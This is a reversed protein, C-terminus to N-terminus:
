FPLHFPSPPPSILQQVAKNSGRAKLEKGQRIQHEWAASDALCDPVRIKGARWRQGDLRRSKDPDVSAKVSRCLWLNCGDAKCLVKRSVLWIVKAVRQRLTNWSWTSRSHASCPPGWKSKGYICTILAQQEAQSPLCCSRSDMRSGRWEKLFGNEPPDNLYCLILIFRNCSTLDKPLDNQTWVVSSFCWNAISAGIPLLCAALSVSRGSILFCIM